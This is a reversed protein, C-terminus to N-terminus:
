IPAPKNKIIKKLTKQITRVARIRRGLIKDYNSYDTESNRVNLDHDAKNVFKIEHINVNDRDESLCPKRSEEAIRSETM